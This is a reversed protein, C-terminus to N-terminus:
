FTQLSATTEREALKEQLLNVNRILEESKARPARKVKKKEARRPASLKAEVSYM